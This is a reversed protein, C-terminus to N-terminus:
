IKLLKGDVTIEPNKFVQDLHIITFIEGGFWYNSGIGIHATGLAKEDIVTSGIIKAKPNLGIGFEGIRRVRNPYKAKNAAWNLTKELEKAEEGGKIETITDEEIKLTIPKKIISTHTHSRSSADIVVTGNVKKGNPPIYVEGAPLNGGYGQKTYNGDACLAKLGKINYYLDTGAKTKIHLEEAVDLIKKIEDHKAQLPKYNTDIAQIIEDTQSNNLDGLSLSSVFRHKKALCMKRFSKGLSNISGLKDSMNVFIINKEKLDALSDIVDDDARMGRAKVNQLVLKADMNLSEAALYYGVSLIASTNKNEFGRDGIILIKENQVALCPVFIKKLYLSANKAASYLNNQKLWNISEVTEM